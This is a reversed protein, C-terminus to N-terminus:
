TLFVMDFFLVRAGKSMSNPNEERKSAFGRLYAVLDILVVVVGNLIWSQFVSDALILLVSCGVPPLMNSLLRPITKMDLFLTYRLIIPIFWVPLTLILILGLTQGIGNALYFGMLVIAISTGLLGGYCGICFFKHGIRFEKGRLRAEPGHHSHYVILPGWHSVITSTKPLGAINQFSQPKLGIGSLSAFLVLSGLLTLIVPGKSGFAMASVVVSVLIVVLWLLSRHFGNRRHLIGKRRMKLAIM